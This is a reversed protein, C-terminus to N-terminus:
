RTRRGPGGHKDYEAIFQSDQFSRRDKEVVDRRIADFLESLIYDGAKADKKVDSLKTHGGPKLVRNAVANLTKALVALRQTDGDRALSALHAITLTVGVPIGFFDQYKQLAHLPIATTGGEREWNRLTNASVGFTEALLELQQEPPRTRLLHLTRALLPPPTRHYRGPM